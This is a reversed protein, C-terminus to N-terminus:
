RQSYGPRKGLPVFDYMDGGADTMSQYSAAIKLGPIDPVHDPLLARQIEVIESIERQVKLNADFLQRATQLNAAIASVLSTRVILEELETVGFQGTDRALLVVWRGVSQETFIPAALASQYVQMQAPLVPDGSLDIQSLVKPQPSKILNAFFSSERAAEVQAMGRLMDQGDDTRLREITYHRPNSPSTIIEAYACRGSRLVGSALGELGEHPDGTHSLSNILEVLQAVRASSAAGANAQEARPPPAEVRAIAVNELPTLMILAFASADLM